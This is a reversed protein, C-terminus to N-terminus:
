PGLLTYPVVAAIVAPISVLGAIILKAIGSRNTESPGGYNDNDQAFFLDKLALATFLIALAGCGYLIVNAASQSLTRMGTETLM